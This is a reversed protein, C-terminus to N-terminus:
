NVNLNAGHKLEENIARNNINTEANSGTKRQIINQKHHYNEYRKLDTKPTLFRQMPIQIWMRWFM